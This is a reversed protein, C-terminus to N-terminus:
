FEKMKRHPGHVTKFRRTLIRRNRQAREFKIAQKSEYNKKALAKRVWEPKDGIAINILYRLLLLSHELVVFLLVWEILTWQPPQIARLQPSLCLLACNTMISLVGLMEFAKQWAGIDKVRKNMPRQLVKCLKFADARIELVNNLIAWFAAVPYVPSFLIVYGFQIFLELYDDYTGEYIEMQAEKNAAIVQHDDNSLLPISQLPVMISLQSQYISKRRKAEQMKEESASFWRKKINNIKEYYLKVLFPLGTEQLNNIAQLIILMTSLQSRLMEMDQIVFAIYFLAMFNNVCEFLVLKTVRHRDWQSQTRHNEWETLYTALKRYYFDMFYVLATYIVSPVSVIYYSWESEITKLYDEAWFSTLMIFFAVSLCLLVIPISVCYMKVNTKWRPYQPFYRGTISDLEMVGQFSPRPEDLSTMGISGWKFALASCKRKWAELFVTTWVVNFICFFWISETSSRLLLQLLGLVVPVCLSTTYFSLFNFYLAVAEGFYIRIDEFPQKDFLSMYWLRGLKKLADKDHLPYIQTIIEWSLCAQVVSQGLYLSKSQVYGPVQTDEALARITELEHRVITQREGITLLDDVHMEDVLFDELQNVTFERIIGTKDMKAIEMEEAVELFKIKSASIHLVVGEDVNYEQKFVILEAGGDRRKGRIKDVLWQLAASPTNVALKIVIYTQPRHSEDSSEDASSDASEAAELFNQKSMSGRLRELKDHIGWLQFIHPEECVM